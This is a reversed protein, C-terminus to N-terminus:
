NETSDVENLLKLEFLAMKNDADMSVVRQFTSQARAKEGKKKYCMGLAFLANVFNPDLEMAKEYYTIATTFDMMQYYSAGCIYFAYKNKRDNVLYKEINQISKNYNNVRFYDKSLAYLIKQNDPYRLLGEELLQIADYYRHESILKRSNKVVDVAEDRALEIVLLTIDDEIQANKVFRQVSNIIADSFEELPLDRNDLIVKELREISFEKREENLAEPIGDTYLILRDSYNLNTTKEEYSDRAEEIAGIFLGNTDLYEVSGEATKLHIAKQHSANSYIVRYEDDVSVMFCTMYDQTKVHDLINQNVEQFIRRPSEYKSGANGFSIKAMTTVLAAPIGHGSVDAIMIGLRDDKLQHVDYFDGGIKEMAIYRVSFKLENWDDIEGPLISRQIVSAMDLQKQIQDDRLKLDSLVSQLEITRQEVKKELNQRHEEIEWAMEMLGYEIAATETELSIIGFAAKGGGAIVKIVRRIDGLIKLISNTTIQMMFMGLLLSIVFYPIIFRFDFEQNLRSKELMAGFSLLVILMLIVFFFFKIRIGMLPRPPITTGNRLLENYILTRENNTISETLLYVAMGLVILIIIITIIIIRLLTIFQIEDIAGTIRYDYFILGILILAGLACYLIVSLLNHATLDTFYRYVKRLDSEPINLNTKFVSNIIRHQKMFSPLGLRTLLGFHISYLLSSIGVAVAFHMPLSSIYGGFPYFVFSGGLFIGIFSSLWGIALSYLAVAFTYSINRALFYFLKM